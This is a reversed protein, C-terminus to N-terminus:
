EQPMISKVIDLVEEAHEKADQADQLHYHDYPADQHGPWRNPFRTNLYHEELPICHSPLHRAVHPRVMRLAHANNSLQHSDIKRADLGCLAYLGGKLAKEVVEHSLFCVHAYGKTDDAHLLCLNLVAIEHEAQRIWRRGESPNPRAIDEGYRNFPSRMEKDWNRQCRSRSRRQSGLTANWDDFDITWTITPTDQSRSRSARQFRDEREPDDLPEGKELHVIQAKLFIFLKDYEEANDSNRDPHYKLYMQRIASRRLDEPLKWIERLQYILVRKSAASQQYFSARLNTLDNGGNHPILAASDDGVRNSVLPARKDGELFKYLKLISVEIGDEDNDDIYIKYKKCYVSQPQESQVLYVIQAMIIKNAEIEYGVFEMPNYMNDADQDLRDQWNLPIAVGLQFLDMNESDNDVVGTIQLKDLM